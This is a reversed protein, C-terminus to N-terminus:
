RAPRRRCARGRRSRRSPAPCGPSAAARAPSRAHEEADAARPGARTSTRSTAAVLRSRASAIFCPATGRLVEVVPDVRDGDLERRQALAGLVDRQEGSCKRSVCRWRRRWAGRGPRAQGRELGVGPGAVHALQEVGDLARHDERLPSSIWGASRGGSTRPSTPAAGAAAPPPLRSAISRWCMTPVSRWTPPWRPLAAAKSPM